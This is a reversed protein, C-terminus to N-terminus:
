CAPPTRWDDYDEDMAQDSFMREFDEDTLAMGADKLAEAAALESEPLTPLPLAARFELGSEMMDTEM